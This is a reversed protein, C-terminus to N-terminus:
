FLATVNSRWDFRFCFHTKFCPQSMAGETSDSVSILRLVPSHCQEKLRIQFLFSDYFLATVNSRWDFRFCFHTTFCPQSMAGETSDSVSILRLVPSHCQEKLRIQFLFSNHFLATVNSRWDFRFCFHTTFCPQSMAGETSDSVSILRLVPSHCQEKLRIQFLFSDYFLATVNSRWDFRFCFHTTFCPQSMAGETSDSVSILRSVPSHCQMNKTRIRRNKDVKSLISM